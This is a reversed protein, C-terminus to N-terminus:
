HENLLKASDQNIAWAIPISSAFVAFLPGILLAWYLLSFVPKVAVMTVNFIKPGLQMSLLTGVAFGIFAGIVGILVVRIFFLQGIKLSPFGTARMIGIEHTRDKVNGMTVSGLWIACIILIVPFLLAFYKDTMKRQKERADAISSNMIVKAEPAILGLEKRLEGLPDGNETSCMCNLAMVENVRGEMNVLTQLTELDFYIRIDDESGQESLTKEVKFSSDFLEINDGETINFQKALEYGLYVKGQPIAFIMKSKKAGSPEREDKSLGTLVVEKERWQVRKHLTATLHAYNVSKQEIMKDVVAESMTRDSYGQMWFTNMDSEGPIIRVNFGMNRTLLRTEDKTAKTITYFAVVLSTITVMGLLGMLFNFKRHIIEKLVLM